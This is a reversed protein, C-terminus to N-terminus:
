SRELQEDYEELEQVLRVLDAGTLDISYGSSHFARLNYVGASVEEVKTEWNPLNPIEM